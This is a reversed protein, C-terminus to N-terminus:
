KVCKAAHGLANLQKFQPIYNIQVITSSSENQEVTIYEVSNIKCTIHRNCRSVPVPLSLESDEWHRCLFSASSRM